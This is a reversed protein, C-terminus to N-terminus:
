LSHEDHYIPNLSQLFDTKLLSFFLQKELQHALDLPQRCDENLVTQKAYVCTIDVISGQKEGIATSVKVNNAIQLIKLYDDEQFETRLALNASQHKQEGLRIELDVKDFVDGDFFNIYRLLQKEWTAVVGTQNILQIFHAIDASFAAWGPYPQPAFLAVVDFGIKAQLGQTNSLQYLAKYKLSPDNEMLETPLAALPLKDVKPLYTKLANYLVGFIASKPLESQFRLEVAAEILPCPSIRLPLAKM